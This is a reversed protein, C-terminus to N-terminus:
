EGAKTTQLSTLMALRVPPIQNGATTKIPIGAVYPHQVDVGATSTQKQKKKNGQSSFKSHSNVKKKSVRSHKFNIETVGVRPSKRLAATM